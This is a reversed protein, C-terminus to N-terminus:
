ARVSLEYFDVCDAAGKEVARGIEEVYKCLQLRGRIGVM